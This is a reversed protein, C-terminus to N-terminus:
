ALRWLKCGLAGHGKRRPMDGRVMVIQGRRQLKLFVQGFARQDHPVNGIALCADVLDESTAESVALRSLIIRCAWESDFPTEPEAEAKAHCAAAAELGEEIAVQLPQPHSFRPQFQPQDWMDTTHQCQKM